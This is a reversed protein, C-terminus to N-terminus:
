DHHHGEHGPKDSMMPQPGFRRFDERCEESCFFYTQGDRDLTLDQERAKDPDITMGCVPDKVTQTQGSPGAPPAPPSQSKTEQHGAHGPPPPLNSGSEAAGRGGQRRFEEKCEDSCFFYTKGDRELTLGQERAKDPDLIMGCVPDKVLGHDVQGGGTPVPQAPQPEPPPPPVPAQKPGASTKQDDMLRAAALKMRSESDILFNGSFVVKEGPQLGGLIEVRDNFRLGTVVPRPEFLGEGIVVYVTKSAGTDIVAGSPVAIIDPLTVVCEVDVFMDPRFTYDPNDLLLRVKLTRSAADFRPPVESVRASFVTGQKPLSIKASMGPRIYKAEIDYLDAEVWVTSLDVVRFCEAGRSIRQRPSVARSLVLGDIPSRLEVYTVYVGSQALRALQTEGVGLDLLEQRAKSAYLIDDERIFELNSKTKKTPKVPPKAHDPPASPATKGAPMRHAEHPSPTAAPTPPQTTTSVDANAPPLEVAPKHDPLPPADGPLEPAPTTPLTPVEASELKTMDPSHDIATELSPTDSPLPIPAGPDPLVAGAKRRAQVIQELQEAAGSTPSVYVTRRGANGLETLYRQQWTFFDYNYIKIKALLQNKGVRSGTTSEHVEGMWGDTGAILAYVRNEDPVIRGLARVTYSEAAKTVEGVRVGLLQQKQGKIRVTGPSTLPASGAIAQDDAYVPEMPMGCPAIGPEKSTHAPDMPDVYHLIEREKGSTAGPSTKHQNFRAGGVFAIVVLILVVLVSLYKKM